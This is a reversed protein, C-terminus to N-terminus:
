WDRTDVQEFEAEVIAAVEDAEQETWLGSFDSLRGGGGDGLAVLSGGVLGSFDSLRGGGGDPAEIRLRVPTQDPLGELSELPRFVGKDFIARITRVM